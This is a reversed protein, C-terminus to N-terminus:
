PTTRSSSPGRRHRTDRLGERRQYTLPFARRDRDTRGRAAPARGCRRTSRERRRTVGGSMVDFPATVSVATTGAVFWGGVRSRHRAAIREAAAAGSSDDDDVPGRANPGAARPVVAGLPGDAVYDNEDVRVDDDMLVREGADALRKCGIGVQRGHEARVVVTGLRRACDGPEAVEEVM